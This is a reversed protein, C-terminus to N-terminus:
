NMSKTFEDPLILNREKYAKDTKNYLCPSEKVIEPLLEEPSQLISRM